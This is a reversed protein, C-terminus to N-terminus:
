FYPCMTALCQYKAYKYKNPKGFLYINQVTPVMFQGMFLNIVDVNLRSLSYRAMVININHLLTITYNCLQCTPQCGLKYTWSPLIVASVLSCVALISCCLFQIFIQLTLIVKITNGLITCKDLQCTTHKLKAVM